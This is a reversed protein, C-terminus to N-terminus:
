STICKSQKNALVDEYLTSEHVLHESKVGSVKPFRKPPPFIGIRAIKTLDKYDCHNLLRIDLTTVFKSLHSNSAVNVLRDLSPSGLTTILKAFYKKTFTSLSLLHLQRSSLRLTQYETLHLHAAIVDFVEAPLSEFPSTM